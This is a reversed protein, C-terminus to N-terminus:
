FRNGHKQSKRSDRPMDFQSESTYVSGFEDASDFLMLTHQGRIRSVLYEQNQVLDVYPLVATLQPIQQLKLTAMQKLTAFSAEAVNVSQCYHLAVFNLSDRNLAGILESVPLIDPRPIGDNLCNFLM